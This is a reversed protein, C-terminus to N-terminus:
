PWRTVHELVRVNGAALTTVWGGSLRLKLDWVGRGDDDRLVTPLMATTTYPLYVGVTSQEVTTELAWREVRESRAAIQAQAEAGELDVPHHHSTVNLNFAFDDGGYLDLDVRQPLARLRIVAPLHHHGDHDHHTLIDVPEGALEVLGGNRVVLDSM